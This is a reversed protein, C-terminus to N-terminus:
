STRTRRLPFKLDDGAAKRFLRESFHSFHKDTVKLLAKSSSAVNSSAKKVRTQHGM